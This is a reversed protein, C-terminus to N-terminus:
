PKFKLETGTMAFYLNQLQHLFQPASYFEKTEKEDIRGDYLKLGFDNDLQMEGNDYGYFGGSQVKGKNFGYKLLIAPTLPIPSVDKAWTCNAKEIEALFQGNVAYISGAVDVCNGSRLEKPNIM